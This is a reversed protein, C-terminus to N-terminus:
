MQSTVPTSKRLAAAVCVADLEQVLTEVAYPKTLIRVDADHGVKDLKVLDAHGSSFVAPLPGYQSTIRAYLEFGDCDPLGVDVVLADPRVTELIQMADAGDFAVQVAIGEDELLATLGCAVEPDDEILLIKLSSNRRSQPAPAAVAQEKRSTAPLFFHVITGTGVHSEIFLHGGHLTIIQQTIALGLGTGNKKTTFFPDFIRALNAAPIGPGDDTVSFHIFPEDEPLTGFPFKEGAKVINAAVTITGAANGIADRANIMVNTLVQSMQDRDAEISKPSKPVGVEFHINSPLLRRVEAACDRLWTRVDVPNRTPPVPRTFGRLESTVSRGRQVSQSIRKAADIVKPDKSSRLLVEAFPQIGMLVNNFEHSMTAAVRGLGTLRNARELETQLFQRESVDIFSMVVGEGANRADLIPSVFIEVPFSTRDKRWFVEDVIRVAKDRATANHVPCDGEAYPTGDARHHHLLEHVNKELIESPSYGLMAAASRNVQTCRHTLDISLIGEYTSELLLEIRRALAQTKEEARRRETVDRGIVLIADSGVGSLRSATAEILKYNGSGTRVPAEIHALDGSRIVSSFGAAVRAVYDPHISDTIRRGILAEAPQEFMRVVAPNVDLVTGTIDLTVIADFASEILDRLRKESQRLSAEAQRLTTVDQVSGAIKIVKGAVDKQPEMVVSHIRDLGGVMMRHEIRQTEGTEAAAATAAVLRLRDEATMHLQLEEFTPPEGPPFGNLRFLEHSWVLEGSELDMEWSGVNAIRQANALQAESKRISELMIRTAAKEETINSAITSVGTIAGRHDHVPSLTLAMDIRRGDKGVRVTEFRDVREGGHIRRLSSDSEDTRDSPALTAGKAGIMEAASFGFIIEAGHNWTLITGDSSMTYIADASSEVIAALRERARERRQMIAGGGLVLAAAFLINVGVIFTLGGNSLFAGGHEPKVAIASLLPVVIAAPLLLRSFAGAATHSTVLRVWGTPTVLLASLSILAFAFATALAPFFRMRPDVFWLVGFVHGFLLVLNVAIAISGIAHSVLHGRRAFGWTAVLALVLLMASTVPFPHFPLGASPIDGTRWARNHNRAIFAGIEVSAGAAVAAGLWRAALSRGPRGSSALVISLSLAILGIGTILAVPGGRPFFEAISGSDLLHGTIAAVGILAAIACCIMIATRQGDFAPAATTSTQGLPQAATTVSTKKRDSETAM